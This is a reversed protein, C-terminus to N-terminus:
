LLEFGHRGEAALVCGCGSALLSPLGPYLRRIEQGLEISIMGPVVIDSFVAGFGGTGAPLELAEAAAAAWTTEYGFDQLLQTSFTGVEVNDEAMLVRGRGEASAEPAAAMAPLEPDLGDASREVRM